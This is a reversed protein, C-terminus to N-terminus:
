LLLDYKGLVAEKVIRSIRVIIYPKDIVESGARLVKCYWNV